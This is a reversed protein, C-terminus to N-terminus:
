VCDPWYVTRSETESPVLVVTEEGKVDADAARGGGRDQRGGVAALELRAVDDRETALAGVALVARQRGAGEGPIDVEEVVAVHM